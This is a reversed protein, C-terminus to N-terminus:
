HQSVGQSAHEMQQVVVKDADSFNSMFNEGHTQKFESADIVVEDSTSIGGKERKEKMVSTAIAALEKQDRAGVVKIDVTDADQANEGASTVGGSAAAATAAGEAGGLNAEKNLKAAEQSSGTVDKGTRPDTKTAVGHGKTAALKPDYHGEAGTTGQTTEHSPKSIEGQAIQYREREEPTAFVRGLAAGAGGINRTNPHQADGLNEDGTNYTTDNRNSYAKSNYNPDKYTTGHLQEDQKSNKKFVNLIKKKFGGSSGESQNHVATGGVAGGVAGAGLAGTKSDGQTTEAPYKSAQHREIHDDGTVFTEDKPAGPPGVHNSHHAEPKLDTNAYSSDYPAGAPGARDGHEHAVPHEGYSHKGVNAKSDTAATNAFREKEGTVLASDNPAGAPGVNQHYSSHPEAHSKNGKESALAAGAAAAGAVGMGTGSVGHSTKEKEGTVFSEDTPAGAPGVHNSHTKSLHESDYPKVDRDYDKSSGTSSLSKKGSTDATGAGAVGGAAVNESKGSNHKKGMKPIKDLLNQYKSPSSPSNYTSKEGAKLAGPLDPNQTKKFDPSGKLVSGIPEDTSGVVGYPERGEPNTVGDGSVLKTQAGTEHQPFVSNESEHISKRRERAQTSHPASSSIHTGGAHHDKTAYGTTAGAALAGVGATAFDKSHHSEKHSEPHTEKHSVHHSEHDPQPFKHHTQGATPPLATSGHGSKISEHNKSPDNFHDSTGAGAQTKSKTNENIPSANPEKIGAGHGIDPHASSLPKSDEIVGSKNKISAVSASSTHSKGVDTVEGVGEGQYTTETNYGAVKAILGGLVGGGATTGKSTGSENEAIVKTSKPDLTNKDTTTAETAPFGGPISGSVYEEQDKFESSDTTQDVTNSSKGTVAGIIGGFIGSEAAATDTNAEESEELTTKKTNHPARLGEPIEPGPSKSTTDLNTGTTQQTDNSRGTVSGVIGGLVGTSSGSKAGDTKLPETEFASTKKDTIGTESTKSTNVSSDIVPDILSSYKANANDNPAIVNGESNNSGHTVKKYNGSVQPDSSTLNSLKNPLNSM